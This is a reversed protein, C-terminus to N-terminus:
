VHARGIQGKNGISQFQAFTVVAAGAPAAGVITAALIAGALLKNIPKM